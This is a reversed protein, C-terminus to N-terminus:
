KVTVKIRKYMGNISKSDIFSFIFVAVFVVAIIIFGSIVAIKKNNFIRKM